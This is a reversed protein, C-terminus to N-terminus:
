NKDEILKKDDIYKYNLANERSIASKKTQKEYSKRADNAVEGGRKAVSMNENFGQPRETKAIDRTAIEGLDTLLVEIDTMNDRLSEKRLGKYQKYEKATMGSWEKYIENTLIAFEINNEIGNEKWVDTLKKREQLSKIRKAIWEEDYGKARYLDIARQLSISPDFTEDIKERGLKALWQKIPEANKSPISEIIRFMEEIDCVDTMRYKGDKAKLKLHGIKESVENGEELLQRKLDSWYKRPRKSESLIEVIDIISIYYKEKDEDWVTRITENNFIKNILHIKNEDM